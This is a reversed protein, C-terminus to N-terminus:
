NEYIYKEREPYGYICYMRGHYYTAVKTTTLLTLVTLPKLLQGVLKNSLKMKGICHEFCSYFACINQEKAYIYNM